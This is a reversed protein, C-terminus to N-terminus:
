KHCERNNGSINLTMCANKDFSKIHMYKLTHHMYQHWSEKIRTTSQQAIQKYATRKYTRTCARASSYPFFHCLGWFGYVYIHVPTCVRVCVHVCVCVCVCVCTCGWVLVRVWLGGRERERGGVCVFTCQYPLQLLPFVFSAVQQLLAASRLLPKSQVLNERPFEHLPSPSKSLTRSLTGGGMHLSLCFYKHLALLYVCVFVRARVRANASGCRSTCARYGWLNWILLHLSLDFLHSSVVFLQPTIVLLHLSLVFLQLSLVCLHLSLVCFVCSCLCFVCTYLCSLCSCLCFM